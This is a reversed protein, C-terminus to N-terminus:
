AELTKVVGSLMVGLIETSYPSSNILAKAAAIDADPTVVVPILDETIPDWVTSRDPLADIEKKELGGRLGQPEREAYSLPERDSTRIVVWAM